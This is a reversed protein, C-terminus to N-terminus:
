QALKIANKITQGKEINFMFWSIFDVLSRNTKIVIVETKPKSVSFEDKAINYYFTNM